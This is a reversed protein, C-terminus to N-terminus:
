RSAAIYPQPCRQVTGGTGVVFPCNVTWESVGLITLSGQFKRSESPFPTNYAACSTHRVRGPKQKTRKARLNRALVM